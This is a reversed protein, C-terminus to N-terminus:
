MIIIWKVNSMPICKLIELYITRELTPRFTKLHGSSKNEKTKTKTKKLIKILFKPKQWMM